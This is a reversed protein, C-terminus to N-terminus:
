GAIVRAMELVKCSYGWENDYWAIVKVMNDGIVMTSLADVIASRPDQRLDSSVLPEESYGLIGRMADSESAAKFAANVQEVTVNQETEVVFDPEVTIGREELLHGLRASAIPRTFAGSLPTVYTIEVADRLGQERLESEAM